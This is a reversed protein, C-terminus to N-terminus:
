ELSNRLEEVAVANHGARALRMYAPLRESRMAFVTEIGMSCRRRQVGVGMLLAAKLVPYNVQCSASKGVRLHMLPDWAVFAEGNSWPVGAHPGSDASNYYGLLLVTGGTRRLQQGDQPFKVQIRFEEASRSAGGHSITWFYLDFSRRQGTSFSIELTLPLRDAKREGIRTVRHPSSGLVELIRQGIWKKRRGPV